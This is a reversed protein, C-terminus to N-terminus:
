IDIGNYYTFTDMTQLKDKYAEQEMYKMYLGNLRDGNTDNGKEYEIQAAIYYKGVYTFPILTAESLSTIRPLARLGKIKLKYGVYDSNPPIDLILNGNFITYYNPKGPSTGQWVSAGTTQDNDTGTCGSLVGTAEANATYTITDEGISVTGSEAFEYSDTLTISTDGATIDSALTTKVVGYRDKDFETIDKYALPCSGLRVNLIGEKSNIYKLDATLGSLAYTDENETITLTSEDFIEHSWDKSIANNTIYHSVEDQWDNFVDLLWERSIDEDIKAHVKKLAGKIIEEATTYTLGTAAVYDSASSDTTGDTFKVFYYAYTTDTSILTYETYNKEWQIMVADAIPTTKADVSTILIGAGGDTAAGYIKIGREYIKTVPTHIEHSFKTTNTITISTGRTVAGNVDCEETKADGKEGLIFWDNDALDNNDSVTLTTGAATFPSVIETRTYGSIDPHKIRITSGIIEIIQPTQLLKSSM